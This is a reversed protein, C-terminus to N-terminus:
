ICFQCIYDEPIQHKQYPTCSMHIWMTCLSCQVWDIIVYNNVNEKLCVGCITPELSHLKNRQEKIQEPSPKAISKTTSSLRPKKTSFFQLQKEHNSNPAIKRKMTLATNNHKPIAKIMTIAAQLHTQATSLATLSDCQEALTQLQNTM